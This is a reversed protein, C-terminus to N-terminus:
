RRFPLPRTAPAIRKLLRRVSDYSVHAAGPLEQLDQHIRVASLGSAHRALIFERWAYAQSRRESGTPANAPKPAAGGAIGESDPGIGPAASDVRAPDM